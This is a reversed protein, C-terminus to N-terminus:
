LCIHHLSFASLTISGLCRLLATIIIFSSRCQGRKQTASPNPYLIVSKRQMWGKWEDTQDRNLFGLDKDAQKLTGLGIALCILHTLAFAWPDFSKGEKLWFGTRDALYILALGGSIILSPLQDETILPAGPQRQGIYHILVLYLRVVCSVSWLTEM